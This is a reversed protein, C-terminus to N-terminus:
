YAFFTTTDDGPVFVDFWTELYDFLGDSMQADADYYDEDVDAVALAEGPVLPFPLLNGGGGLSASPWLVFDYMLTDPFTFTSNEAYVTGIPIFLGADLYGGAGCGALLPLALALLLLVPLLRLNRM